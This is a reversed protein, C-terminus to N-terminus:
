ENTTDKNKEVYARLDKGDVVRTGGFKHSNLGDKFWNYVTKRCVGILACIENIRYYKKVDIKM